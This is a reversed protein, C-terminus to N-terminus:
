TSRALAARIEDSILGVLAARERLSVPWRTPVHAGSQVRRRCNILIHDKRFIVTLVYDDFLHRSWSADSPVKGWGRQDAVQAFAARTTPADTGGDIRILDRRARTLLLLRIAWLAFPVSVSILLLATWRGIVGSRLRDVTMGVVCAVLFFVTAVTLYAEADGTGGSLVLRGRRISDAVRVEGDVFDGRRSVTGAYVAQAGSARAHRWFM